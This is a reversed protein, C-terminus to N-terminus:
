WSDTQVGMVYCSSSTADDCQPTLTEERDGWRLLDKTLKHRNLHREVGLGQLHVRRGVLADLTHILILVQLYPWLRRMGM